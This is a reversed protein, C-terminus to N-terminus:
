YVQWPYYWGRRHRRPDHLNLFPDEGRDPAHNPVQDLETGFFHNGVTMATHTKTNHFKAQLMMDHTVQLVRTSVSQSALSFSEPLQVPLSLSWEASPM